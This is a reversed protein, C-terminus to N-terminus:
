HQNVALRESAAAKLAVEVANLVATTTPDNERSASFDGPVAVEVIHIGDAWVAVEIAATGEEGLVQIHFPYKAEPWRRILEIRVREQLDHSELFVNRHWHKM